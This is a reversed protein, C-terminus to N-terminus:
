PEAVSKGLPDTGFVAAIKAYLDYAELIDSTALKDAKEKWEQGEAKIKDFLKNAQEAVAKNTSKRLPLLLKMAQAHQGSELLHLVPELMAEYAGSKYKFDVKTDSVVKELGEKSMDHSIVKGDPGIVRFQWINQLSISLGYRKEMLDLNDVFVPMN